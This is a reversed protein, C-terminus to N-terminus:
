LQSRYTNPTFGTQSKFSKSFNSADSYGMTDAISELSQNSRRLLTKAQNIRVESKIHQYTTNLEKLRRQLTSVSMNLRQAMNQLSLNSSSGDDLAKYVQQILGKPRLQKLTSECENTAMKALDTDGQRLSFQM